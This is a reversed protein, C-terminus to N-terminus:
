YDSWCSFPAWGDNRVTVLAGAASSIDIKKQAMPDLTLKHDPQCCLEIHWIAESDHADAEFFLYTTMGVPRTWFNHTGGPELKMKKSM